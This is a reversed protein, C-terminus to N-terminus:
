GKVQLRGMFYPTKGGGSDTIIIKYVATSFDLEAVATYDMTINFLGQSATHTIGDGVTLTKYTEGNESEAIIMEADYGTTDMPTVNDDEMHQFSFGVWDAGRIIAPPDYNVPYEEDTIQTSTM